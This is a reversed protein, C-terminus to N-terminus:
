AQLKKLLAAFDLRGGLAERVAAAKREGRFRSTLWVESLEAITEPTQHPALLITTADHQARDLVYPSPDRGGTIVLCAANTDIVALHLDTKNFPALVAKSAFRRLHPRAPDAYVPAVLIDEVTEAENEGDYLVRADLADRIEGVSPAALVRDEPILAIPRFGGNTLERAVDEIGDPLVSTGISGLLRDGLAAALARDEGTPAGRVVVIAPTGDLPAAGADLEVIVTEGAGAAPATAVASGPSAASLVAAFSAADEGAAAGSGVRVLQVKAGNAAFGEALAVAVTTKGALAQASLVQLRPM